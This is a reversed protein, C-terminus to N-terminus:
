MLSQLESTHEESRVAVVLILTTAWIVVPLLGHHTLLEPAHDLKVLRWGTVVLVTGLTAMPMARLVSPLLAVFALIWVGHLITSRRSVAGAQVNASSRVIVGTMPLAGVGGCLMNGVGQARLEKNFDSRPGDHMKDVAAASLDSSCGDSSWDSIRM